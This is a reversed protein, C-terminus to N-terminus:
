VKLSNDGKRFFFAIYMKYIKEQNIQDFFILHGMNKM